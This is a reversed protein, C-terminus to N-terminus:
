RESYHIRRSAWRTPQTLEREGIVITFCNTANNIVTERSTSQDILKATASKASLLQTIRM